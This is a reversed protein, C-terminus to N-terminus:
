KCRKLAQLIRYGDSVKGKLSFPILNIVALYLNFLFPLTFSGYGEELSLFFLSSATLGNLLPGGASIWIKERNSFFSERENLSYAGQFFLLHICVRVRKQKWSLLVKGRGLHLESHDSRFLLGPIIHGLEHILQSLPAVLFILVLITGIM